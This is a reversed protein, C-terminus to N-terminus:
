PQVEGADARRRRLLPMACKLIETQTTREPDLEAAIRGERMVLIRSSLALIEPLESSIVIVAKGSRALGRVIEQIEAKVGVDIGRTPEDLILIEPDALLARAILVKQQNGGSLHRAKQNRGPTRIALARIRDDTIRNERRRDIWGLRCCRSLSSLTINHKVSMKPVIGFERRDESVMAIGRAIAHRPSEIKARRGGIRIEGKGAPLLGYLACALETRGAGMLGALGLIEGRRLDFGVDSFAGARSLGRVELVPDGPKAAERPGPAAPRHGVMLEILRDPGLRGTEYTGMCRGDRLVTVADAICFVEEMRHSIYVVAVQQRKLDGIIGFLAAAERESLASTPEDMIIVAARHVLAKAIEVAQMESIRLNKMMRSPPLDVGLRQLLREAERRMEGRRLWGTRPSAPERGMFINEAVTLEPFPLLEQHIMSIGHRLADHPSRLRLKKDGQFIGGADPPFFGALIKALTSKGAGNEGMLAHVSGKRIDLSVEAVAQVGPFAKSLNRVQLAYDM